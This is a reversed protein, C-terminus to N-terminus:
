DITCGGIFGDAIFKTKFSGFSDEYNGRLEITHEGSRKPTCYELVYFSKSESEVKQAVALFTANLDFSNEALEFGDRGFNNLVDM